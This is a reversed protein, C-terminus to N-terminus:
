WQQILNQTQGEQRTRGEREYLQRSKELAIPDVYDAGPTYGPRKYAERITEAKFSDPDVNMKRVLNEAGINQEAAAMRQSQTGSYTVSPAPNKRGEPVPGIAGFEVRVGAPENQSSAGFRGTMEGYRISGERLQQPSGSRSAALYDARVGTIAAQHGISQPTNYILTGTRADQTTPKNTTEGTLRDTYLQVM